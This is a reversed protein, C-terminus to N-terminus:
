VDISGQSPEGECAMFHPMLLEYKLEGVMGANTKRQRIMRM